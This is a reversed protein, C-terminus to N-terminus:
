SIKEESCLKGQVILREAGNYTCTVLTVISEETNDLIYTDEPAVVFSKIVKYTYSKDHTSIIIDDGESLKDIKLFFEGTDFNRHGALACNGKEGPKVTEPFHGVAYKIIDDEIGEAVVVKLNIKPIQLYAIPNVKDIYAYEDELDGKKAEPEKTEANQFKDYLQDQVKATKWKGKYAYILLGIGIIILMISIITRVKKKM